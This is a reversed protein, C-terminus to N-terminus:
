IPRMSRCSRSQVLLNPLPPTRASLPESLSKAFRWFAPRKVRFRISACPAYEPQRHNPTTMAFDVVSARDRGSMQPASLAAGRTKM